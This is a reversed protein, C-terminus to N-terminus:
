RDTKKLCVCVCLKVPIQKPIQISMQMSEYSCTRLRKLSYRLNSRYMQTTAPPFGSGTIGDVSRNDRELCVRKMLSLTVRHVYLAEQMETTCEVVLLQLQLQFMQTSFIIVSSGRFLSCTPVLINPRKLSIDSIQLNFHVPIPVLLKTREM